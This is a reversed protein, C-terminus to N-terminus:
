YSIVYYFIDLTLTGGGTTPNAAATIAINENEIQASTDVATAADVPSILPRTASASVGNLFNTADITAVTVDAGDDYGITLNTDSFAATSYNHKAVIRDVIILKGAGPAPILEVPTTSLALMQANTITVPKHAAVLVGSQEFGNESDVGTFNTTSGDTAQTM